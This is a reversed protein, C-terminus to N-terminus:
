GASAATAPEWALVDRRRDDEGLVTLMDALPAELDAAAEPDEQRLLHWAAHANRATRM